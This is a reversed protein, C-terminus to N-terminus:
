KIQHLYELKSDPSPRYVGVVNGKGEYSNDELIHMLSESFEIASM